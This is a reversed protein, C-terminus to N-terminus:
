TGWPIAVWSLHGSHRQLHSGRQVLGGYTGLAFNRLIPVKRPSTQLITRPPCMGGSSRLSIDDYRPSGTPSLSLGALQATGLGILLLPQTLGLMSAPCGTETSGLSLIFGISDGRLARVTTGDAAKCRRRPDKGIVAPTRSQVRHENSGCVRSCRM